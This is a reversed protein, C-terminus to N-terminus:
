RIVVGPPKEIISAKLFGNFDGLATLSNAASDKRLESVPGHIRKQGQGTPHYGRATLRALPTRLTV